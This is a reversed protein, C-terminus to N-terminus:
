TKRRPIQSQKSRIKNVSQSLKRGAIIQSAHIYHDEAAQPTLHGLISGAIGISEPTIIATSTAAIDRFLHPNIPHGFARKTRKTIAAHIGRAGLAGGRVDIWLSTLDASKCLRPRWEQLWMELFPTLAPPLEMTLYRNNKVELPAFRLQFQNNVFVLHQGIEIMTLNRLRIPCTTLLVIMLADRYAIAASPRFDSTASLAIMENIAWDFVEAAPRLRVHKQRTPKSRAKLKATIRYLWGWEHTPAFAMATQHLSTVYSWVTEPAVEAQLQEVYPRVNELTIREVPDSSPDLLNHTVLFHLWRGYGKRVKELTPTRWSAARPTFEDLISGPESIKLWLNQDKAPWDSVELCLPSSSTTM